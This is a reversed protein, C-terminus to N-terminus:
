DKLVKRLRESDIKEESFNPHYYGTLSIHANSSFMYSAGLEYNTIKLLNKKGPPKVNNNRKPVMLETATCGPLSVSIFYPM